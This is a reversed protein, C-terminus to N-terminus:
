EHSSSDSDFMNVEDDLVLNFTDHNEEDETETLLIEYEVACFKEWDSLEKDGNGKVTAREGDASEQELYKLYNVFTNFFRHALGCRKIDRLTIRKPDEPSVLDYLQNAVDSFELTEYNKAHIKEIMDTYFLEMEYLSIIGDGDLDICRFWYEISTPHRKDEEALLFAVFEEFGITEIKEEKVPGRQNQQAQISKKAPYRNVANSFIRDIIMNTLAGDCHNKMDERSIIMDHDYDLEWFKCYTVYFHEYSFYDTIKNIDDIEELLHMTQLFNSKRLEHATIRGSWSRNVNWFIRVVVVEVYRAHFLTSDILFNLGPYTSILDYLISHFDEKVLYNRAPLGSKAVSLTFIFRSAEDHNKQILENWFTLFQNFSVDPNEAASLNSCQCVAEYVARKTYVPLGMKRCIEDFDRPRLANQPRSNFITEIKALTADNESKTIPKGTPFHFKPVNALKGAIKSYHPIPPPLTSKQHSKPASPKILPQTTRLDISIVPESTQITAFVSKENRPSFTENFHDFNIQQQKQIPSLHIIPTSARNPKPTSQAIPEDKTELSRNNFFSNSPNNRTLPSAEGTSDDRWRPSYNGGNNKIIEDKKDNAMTNESGSSSENSSSTIIKLNKINKGNKNSRQVRFMKYMFSDLFLSLHSKRPSTSSHKQPSKPLILTASNPQRSRTKEPSHGGDQSSHSSSSDVGSDPSDPPIGAKQYAEEKERLAKIKRKSKSGRLTAFALSTCDCNAADGPRNSISSWRRDDPVTSPRKERLIAAKQPSLTTSNATTSTTSNWIFEDTSQSTPTGVASDVGSSDEESSSTSARSSYYVVGEEEKGIQEYEEEDAIANATSPHCKHIGDEVVLPFRNQQTQWKEVNATSSLLKGLDDVSDTLDSIIIPDEEKEIEEEEEPASSSASASNNNLLLWKSDATKHSSSMPLVAAM